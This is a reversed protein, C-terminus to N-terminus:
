KEKERKEPGGMGPPPINIKLAENQGSVPTAAGSGPSDDATLAFEDARDAQGAFNYGNRL